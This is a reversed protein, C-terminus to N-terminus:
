RRSAKDLGIAKKVMPLYTRIIYKKNTHLVLSLREAAANLAGREGKTASLHRIKSPFVYPRLMTVRGNNALSIGSSILVNVYRYYGYYSTRGAKEYFKSASALSAYADSIEEPLPYRNPINEDVWNILMGLDIDSKAVAARPVDFSKSMFFKDLVGFVELKRDRWGLNDLLEPKAGLMLELDNIAGRVDGDSRRVIEAIVSAEVPQNEQKAIKELLKVIDAQNVKKFEVKDIINRLFSIKQDWYDTATFIVPQKSTEILEKIVAEAGHDFKKSLEDIEDMFIVINKNFLGRSRSAPLLLRRLKDVDRYDSSNLELLEFGNSGALAHVASTKGTGTPGFIMIPKPRVGAHVAASFEILRKVSAYNGIVSGLTTPAYKDSLLFDGSFSM